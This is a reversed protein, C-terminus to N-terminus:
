VYPVTAWYDVRDLSRAAKNSLHAFLSYYEANAVGGCLRAARIMHTHLWAKRLLLHNRPKGFRTAPNHLCLSNLHFLTDTANQLFVRRSSTHQVALQSVLPVLAHPTNRPVTTHNEVAKETYINSLLNLNPPVYVAGTFAVPGTNDLSSEDDDRRFYLLGSATAICDINIPNHNECNGDLARFNHRLRSWAPTCHVSSRVPPTTGTNLYLTDEAVYAYVANIRDATFDSVNILNMRMGQKNTITPWADYACAHCFAIGSYLATSIEAMDLGINRNLFCAISANQHAIAYSLAGCQHLRVDRTQEGCVLVADSELLVVKGNPYNNTRLRNLSTAVHPNDTVLRMAQLVRTIECPRMDSYLAATRNSGMSRVPAAPVNRRMILQTTAIMGTVGNSGTQLLPNTTEEVLKDMPNFHHSITVLAPTDTDQICYSSTFIDDTKHLQMKFTGQGVFVRLTHAADQAILVNQFNHTPLGGLGRIAHRVCQIGTPTVHLTGTSGDPQPICVDVGTATTDSSSSCWGKTVDTPDPKKLYPNIFRIIDTNTKTPDALIVEMSVSGRTVPNICHGWTCQFVHMHYGSQKCMPVIVLQPFKDTTGDEARHLLYRTGVAKITYQTNVPTSAGSYDEIPITAHQYVGSIVTNIAEKYKDSVPGTLCIESLRNLAERIVTPGEPSLNCIHAYLCHMSCMCHGCSSTTPTFVLTQIVVM